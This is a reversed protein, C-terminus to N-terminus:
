QRMRLWEYGTTMGVCRLQRAHGGWTQRTSALGGNTKSQLLVQQGVGDGAVRQVSVVNAVAEVLVQAEGGQVALLVDTSDSLHGFQEGIGPQDADGTKDRREGLDSAM